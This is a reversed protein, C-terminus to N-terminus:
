CQFNLKVIISLHAKLKRYSGAQKLQSSCGHNLMSLLYGFVVIHCVRILMGDVNADWRIQLGGGGM